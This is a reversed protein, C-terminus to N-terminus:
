RTVFQPAPKERHFEGVVTMQATASATSFTQSDATVECTFIGSLGFSVNKIVVQTANSAATQLFLHFSFLSKFIRVKKHLFMFAANLNANNKYQRHYHM